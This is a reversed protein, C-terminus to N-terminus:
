LELWNPKDLTLMSMKRISALLEARTIVKQEEMQEVLGCWIAELLKGNEGVQFASAERLQELLEEPPLTLDEIESTAEALELDGNSFTRGWFEFDALIEIGSEFYEADPNPKIQWSVRCPVQRDSSLHTLTGNWNEQLTRRGRIRAGHKSIDLTTVIEKLLEAGGPCFITLLLRHAVLVRESRRDMKSKRM